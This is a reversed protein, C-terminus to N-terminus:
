GSFDPMGPLPRSFLYTKGEHARVGIWDGTKVQSFDHPCAGCRPANPGQHLSQLMGDKSGREKFVLSEVEYNRLGVAKLFTEYTVRASREKLLSDRKITLDLLARSSPEFQSVTNAVQQMKSQEQSRAVKRQFREEEEEPSGREIWWPGVRDPGLM